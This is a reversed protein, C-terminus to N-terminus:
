PRVAEMRRQRQFHKQAHSRVQSISRSGIFVAIIEAIGPGLGDSIRGNPCIAQTDKTRFKGLAALFKEHEEATWPNCKRRSKKASLSGPSATASEHGAEEGDVSSFSGSPKFHSQPLDMEGLTPVSFDMNEANDKGAPAHLFDDANFAAPRPPMCSTLEPWMLKQECHSQASHGTSVPADHGSSIPTFYPASVDVPREASWDVPSFISDIDDKAFFPRRAFQMEGARDVPQSEVCPFLAAVADDVSSNSTARGNSDWTQISRHNDSYSATNFAVVSAVPAEAYNM